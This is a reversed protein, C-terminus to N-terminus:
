PPVPRLFGELRAAHGPIQHNARASLLEGWVVDGSFVETGARDVLRAPVVTAARETATDAIVAILARAQDAVMRTREDYSSTAVVARIARADMAGGNDIRADQGARVRWAVDTLMRDSRAVHGLTWDVQAREDATLEVRGVETAAAVLREYALALQETDM